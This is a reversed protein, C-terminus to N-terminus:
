CFCEEVVLTGACVKYRAEALKFKREAKCSGRHAPARCFPCTASCSECKWNELACEDEVIVANECGPNNCRHVNQTAALLKELLFRHYKELDGANIRRAVESPM